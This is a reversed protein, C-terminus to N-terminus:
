KARDSTVKQTVDESASQRLPLTNPEYGLPGQISVLSHLMKKAERSARGYNLCYDMTFFEAMQRSQRLQQFM